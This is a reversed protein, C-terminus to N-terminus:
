LFVEEQTDDIVVGSLVTYWRLSSTSNNNDHQCNRTQRPVADTMSRFRIESDTPKESPTKVLKIKTM